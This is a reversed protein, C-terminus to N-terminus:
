SHFVGGMKKEQGFTKKVVEKKVATGDPFKIQTVKLGFRRGIEAWRNGFEGGTFFVVADGPSFFNVIGAELGATGSATLLYIPNKTQFFYQLNNVVEQHVKEYSKGRHSIMQQSLSSLAQPSLPIPGPIMFNVMTFFYYKNYLIKM